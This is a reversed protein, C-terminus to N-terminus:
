RRVSGRWKNLNKNCTEFDSVYCSSVIQSVFGCLIKRLSCVKFSKVAGSLSVDSRIVDAAWFKWTIM